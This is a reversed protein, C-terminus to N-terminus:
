LSDKPRSLHLFLVVAGIVLLFPVMFKWAVITLFILTLIGAFAMRGWPWDTDWLEDLSAFLSSLARLLRTM